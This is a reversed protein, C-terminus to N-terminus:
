YNQFISCHINLTFPSKIESFNHEDMEKTKEQVLQSWKSSFKANPQQM